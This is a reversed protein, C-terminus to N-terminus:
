RKIMAQIKVRIGNEETMLPGYFEADYYVHSAEVSRVLDEPQKSVALFSVSEEQIDLEELYTHDPIAKTLEELLASASLRDFAFRGLLPLDSAYDVRAIQARLSNAEDARHQISLLRVSRQEFQETLEATKWLISVVSGVAVVIAILCCLAASRYPHVQRPSRDIFESPKGEKRILWRPAIQDGNAAGLACDIVSRRVVNVTVRAGTLNAWGYYVETEILSIRDQIELSVISKQDAFALTPLVIDFSFWDRPAVELIDPRVSRPWIITGDLELTAKEGQEPPAIHSNRYTALGIAFFQVMQVFTPFHRTMFSPYTM